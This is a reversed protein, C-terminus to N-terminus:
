LVCLNSLSKMATMKSNYKNIILFNNESEKLKMEIEGRTNLLDSKLFM